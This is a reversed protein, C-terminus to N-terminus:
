PVIAWWAATASIHNDSVSNDVFVASEYGSNTIGVHDVKVEMRHRYRFVSWFIWPPPPPLPVWLHSISRGSQQENVQIRWVAPATFGNCRALMYRVAARTMPRNNTDRASNKGGVFRWQRHLAYSRDNGDECWEPLYTRPMYSEWMWWSQPTIICANFSHTYCLSESRVQSQSTLSHLGNNRKLMAAWEQVPMGLLLVYPLLTYGNDESSGSLHKARCQHYKIVFLIVVPQKWVKFSDWALASIYNATVNRKPLFIKVSIDSIYLRFFVIVCCMGVVM